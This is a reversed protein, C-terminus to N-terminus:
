EALRKIILLTSDDEWKDSNGFKEVTDFVVDLIEKASKEQNAIVLDKMRQITFAEEKENEREFMGDSYLVVVAGPTINAFSRHL